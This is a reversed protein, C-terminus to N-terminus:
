STTKATTKARQWHEELQELLVRLPPYMARHQAEAGLLACIASFGAAAVCMAFARYGRAAFVFALLGCTTVMWPLFWLWTSELFVGAAVGTSVAVALLLSMSM